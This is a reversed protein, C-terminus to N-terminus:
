HTIVEIVTRPPSQQPVFLLQLERVFTGGSDVSLADRVDVDCKDSTLGYGRPNRWDASKRWASSSSPSYCPVSRFNRITNPSVQFQHLNVSGASILMFAQFTTLAGPKM